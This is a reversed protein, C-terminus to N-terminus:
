YIVSVSACGEKQKKNGMFDQEGFSFSYSVNKFKYFLSSVVGGQKKEIANLANEEDKKFADLFENILAQNDKITISIVKAELKNTQTNRERVVNMDVSPLTECKKVLANLNEQAFIEMSFSSVIFLLMMIWVNRKM